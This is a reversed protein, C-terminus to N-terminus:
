LSGCYIVKVRVLRCVQGFSLVPVPKRALVPHTAAKSHNRKTTLLEAEIVPIRQLVAKRDGRMVKRTVDAAEGNM